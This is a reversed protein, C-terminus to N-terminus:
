LVLVSLMVLVVGSGLCQVVSSLSGFVSRKLKNDVVKVLPVQSNM